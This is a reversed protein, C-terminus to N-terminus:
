RVARGFLRVRSVGGDPISNFRIHTIPGLDKLADFTHIADASLPQEELLTDWFMSQTILSQRTSEGVFAAQISCRAPFNGKFHATDVEIREAIGAHGLSLICWDNGPERRRRTEWGDGMDKGRGPRLMNRPEGYHADSWAVQNGGNALALLDLTENSNASSWDRHPVGYVRLRAMGGDPYIHLRLHTWVQSSTIAHFHHSNGKLETAAILTHWDSREDPVTEPSYCAELSAAPPFNGTFFSTDFDVGLLTGPMALRVISWDHGTTRRRRTEWGDMWKGHDDYRGPYFTAPEPNLMRQGPAFFEDTAGLFEAGLSGDALNLGIRTFEPGEVPASVIANSM